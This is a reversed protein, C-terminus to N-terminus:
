APVQEGTLIYHGVNRKDDSILRAEAVDRARQEIGRLRDLERARLRLEAGRRHYEARLRAARAGDVTRHLDRATSDLWSEAEAVPIERATPDPTTMM